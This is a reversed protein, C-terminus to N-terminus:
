SVSSAPPPLELRIEPIRAQRFSQQRARGPVDRCTRPEM